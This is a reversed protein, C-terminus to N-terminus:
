MRASNEIDQMLRQIIVQSTARVVNVKVGPYKQTFAAGVAEANEASFHAIYWTLEGEKKAAEYLEQESQALAPAAVLTAAACLAAAVSRISM